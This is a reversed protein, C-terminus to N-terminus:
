HTGAVPRHVTGGMQYAIDAIGTSNSNRLYVTGNSPRYLGLTDDGDGDWDGAFVVDGNNGYFYEIEGVGETNANRLYVFGNSDRRLGPTDFGDGNWDGVFPKDGPNGFLYSYEAAGLGTDASGLSNIIYFRAESPRYISVTDCGDGDFDGALPVDGPNGFFFSIDAVGQTNSNRLYVYGDSQRYLGPTDIGDCDWDGMFGYDGPVGYYITSIVGAPSHYLWKGTTPDHLVTRDAGPIFPVIGTVEDVYHSLLGLATKFQSGTYTKTLPAGGLYGQVVITKPSGSQYRETITTSFVNDFGLWASFTSQPLGTEWSTAGPDNRSRLYPYPLGGWQDENNETAGGSSSFYYAEIARPGLHFSHILAQGATADVASIWKQGWFGGTGEAEKAWGIYKQDLTSAYLHCACANRRNQITTSQGTLLERYVWARYLAYSRGAIAQAQLAEPHWSSPMEGLGYLYQELPLEVLLHFAGPNDPVQVFLIAGRAYTRILTPVWVRVDPQGSWTISGSCPGASGQATEGNFFQCKGLEVVRLSWSEGPQAAPAGSASPQVAGNIPIFDFRTMDQGVGIRLPEAHGSVETGVTGITAGTYFYKVIDEALTGSEALAKAGYQSMGIGHGWGGGTIVVENEAADAPLAGSVLGVSLLTVLLAIRKKFKPRLLPLGSVEPNHRKSEAYRTDQQLAVDNKGM